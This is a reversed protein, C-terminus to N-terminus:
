KFLHWLKSTKKVFPKFEKYSFEIEIIGAVHPAIEQQSYRFTIGKSNIYYSDTLRIKDFDIGFIDRNGDFKDVLKKQLLSVLKPDDKSIILEGINNLEEGSELSYVEGDTYSGTGGGTYTDVFMMDYILSVYNNDIYALYYGGSFHILEESKSNNVDRSYTKKLQENLKDIGAIKKPNDLQNLRTSFDLSEKLLTYMTINLKNVKSNINPKADITFSKKSNKWRGKLATKNDITVDIIESGSSQKFLYKSNNDIGSEEFYIFEGVNNYYYKLEAIKSSNNIKLYITIPYKDAIKGDLIYLTEKSITLSEKASVTSNLLSLFLVPLFFLQLSTKM